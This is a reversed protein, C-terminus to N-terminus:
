RCKLRFLLLNKVRFWAPALLKEVGKSTVMKVTPAVAKMPLISRSRVLIECRTNLLRYVFSGRLLIGIRVTAPLM